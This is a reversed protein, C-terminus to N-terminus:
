RYIKNDNYTKNENENEIKDMMDNDAISAMRLCCWFCFLLILIFIVLLVKLM